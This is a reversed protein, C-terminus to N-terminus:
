KTESWKSARQIKPAQPRTGVFELLPNLYNDAIWSIAPVCVADGFGFLAQNLPAVIKFGEAGMLNACERPTLLRARFAGHGAKFLIQRGSGGKPTRLCGAIGDCRLEAMSRKRGDPQRRVRRFVTGYSWRPRSMWADALARHRESMQGYLYTARETTWWEPADDSLNELVDVLQKSTFEPPDPLPHISWEVNRHSAVYELLSRPRLRNSWRLDYRPDETDLMRSGVVFLRPRSQPVFWKADLIFPDVRYGLGNLELMAKEFDAGGHSSLFATVNELLVLPPRRDGMERLVKTFGFFASSEKGRLGRRGGALSLDTCPFSATALEADPIENERLHHIDGLAYHTGADGFHADYMDRKSPDIDNAYAVRWGAAELGMRVLGIGAFFELFAPRDGNRGVVRLQYRREGTRVLELTDGASVAHHAYFRRVWGRGRFRLRPRGSKVDSPIDTTVTEAIGHLEIAIPDGLGKERRSGGVVDEPFFDRHGRLSIYGNRLHPAEVRILRRRADRNAKERDKV